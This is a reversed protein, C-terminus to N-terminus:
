ATGRGDWGADTAETDIRRALVDALVQENSRRDRRSRRRNDPQFDVPGGRPPKLPTETEKETETETGSGHGCSPVGTEPEVTGSLPADALPPTRLGASMGESMGESM